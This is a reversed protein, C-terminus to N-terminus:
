DQEDLCPQKSLDVTTDIDLDEHELMSAIGAARARQAPGPDPQGRLARGRSVRQSSDLNISSGYESLGQSAVYASLV